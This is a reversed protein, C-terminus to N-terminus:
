EGPLRRYHILPSGNYDGRGSERFALREALRISPVNGDAIICSQPMAPHNRDAWALVARMAEGALGRGQAAPLFAWGAELTGDLSPQITRKMDMVGAEGILKGSQREEVIWFGCGIMAWMGRFRLIRAWCEQRDLPKGSIFKVVEDNSWLTLYAGMDDTRHERLTLRDTTLVPIGSM